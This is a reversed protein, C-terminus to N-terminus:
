LTLTDQRGLRSGRTVLYPSLREKSRLGQLRAFQRHLTFVFTIDGNLIDFISVVNLELIFLDMRPALRAGDGSIEGVQGVTWM